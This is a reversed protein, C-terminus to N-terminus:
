EGRHLSSGSPNPAGSGTCSPPDGGSRQARHADIERRTLDLADALRPDTAAHVRLAGDLTALAADYCGLEAQVQALNNYAPLFHRQVRIAARYNRAAEALNGTRYETNGLGLWAVPNDPWRRTAAAYALAAPRIGGTSELDAVAQLYREPDATAPIDGPRPIVLGWYGARRWSSVFRHARALHRRTTGSRLIMQDSDPLYGIVVAYHWIPFMGSGLDQLVLVPHGARLEELLAELRSSIVYAVRHHRRTAAILEAQLSGQRAPLYVQPALVEPPVEVGAAGLTVALAAPGCQHVTQPYFPTTVLEIDTVPIGQPLHRRLLPEPSACGYLLLVLGLVAGARNM